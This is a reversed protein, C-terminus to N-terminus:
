KKMKIILVSFDSEEESYYKVNNGLDFISDKDVSIALNEDLLTKLTTNKVLETDEPKGDESFYILLYNNKM